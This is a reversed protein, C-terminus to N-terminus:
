NAAIAYVLGAVINERSHGEQQAIRIDSNIFAACTAKFHVPSPAALALDAIDSVDMGLDGHASEELFSGTGASCANNMAYDIPVGNRLYIYKSDQGGIEFITDVENDFHNAGAAHASIENYVHETGLYAGALERASGTTGVLSVRRNGVLDVLAHLCQRTAAVPDGSTRAYHSAVVARTAPDLLIAKTTTSGADVGLIMPGDPPLQWPPAAIVQVRDSYNNLSPLRSLNSQRALNPAKHVPEDRTILATGWAEFWPSEPLVVFETAPLKERLAAVMAANCTVGGILLVRRLKRQGKELLAVVKNAMSDHLTHLIDEPTAENRNLKHTIDSKCHVSCRSALPVVKGEFSRRIAEEMGLGMRGIQQVFFEGSGAACKNHSLVNIIRGEALIYALFSEGGLSAVADFSGPTERIARQIASVESIHGLRGSVGFCEADTFENGALMENLVELPRGRHAVVRAIKADGRLAAVKVTLAGINIGVYSM